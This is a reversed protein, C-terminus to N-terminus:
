ELAKSEGGDSHAETATKVPQGDVLVVGAGGTVDDWVAAAVQAVDARKSTQRALYRRQQRTETVVVAPPVAGAKLFRGDPGVRQGPQNMSSYFAAIRRAGKLQILRKSM